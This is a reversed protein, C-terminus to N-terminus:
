ALMRHYAGVSSDVLLFSGDMVPGGPSLCSKSRLVPGVCCSLGQSVRMGRLQKKGGLSENLVVRRVEEKKGYFVM